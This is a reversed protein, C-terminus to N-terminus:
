LTHATPAVDMVSKASPYLRSIISQRTLVALQEEGEKIAM